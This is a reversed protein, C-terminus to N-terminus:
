VGRLPGSSSPPLPTTATGAAPRPAERPRILTEAFRILLLFALYLTIIAGFLLLTLLM